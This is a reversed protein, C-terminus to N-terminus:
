KKELLPWIDTPTKAIADAGWHEIPYDAHIYGYECAITAMNANKGAEIDRDCDGIYVCNEPEVGIMECALIIPSPDPKAVPLTDGCVIAAARKDLALHKVIPLTAETPKNTIIGWPTDNAEIQELLVEIDPFFQTDVTNQTQYRALYKQRLSQFDIPFDNGFGMSLLKTSGYSVYQRFDTVSCTPRNYEQLLDNLTALLDPASDILTGDLDFLIADYKM